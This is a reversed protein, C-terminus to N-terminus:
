TRFRIIDMKIWPIPFFGPPFESFVRPFGQTLDEAMGEAVLTFHRFPTKSKGYRLKLKWDRDDNESDM